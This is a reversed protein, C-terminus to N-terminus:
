TRSVLASASKGITRVVPWAGSQAKAYRVPDYCRFSSVSEGSEAADEIEDILRPQRARGSFMGKISTVPRKPMLVVSGNPHLFVKVPAGPRAKLHERATKPLGIQGKTSLISEMTNDTRLMIHRAHTVSTYDLEFGM